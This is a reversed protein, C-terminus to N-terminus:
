IDVHSMLQFLIDENNLCELDEGEEFLVATFQSIIQVTQTVDNTYLNAIIKSPQQFM